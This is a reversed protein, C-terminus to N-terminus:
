REVLPEALFTYARGAWARGAARGGVAVGGRRGRLAQLAGQGSQRRLLATHPSRPLPEVPM